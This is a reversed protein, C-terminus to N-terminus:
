QIEKTTRYLGRAKAEAPRNHIGRHGTHCEFCIAILNEPSEDGGFSRELIHHMTVARHTCHPSFMAECWGGSREAVVPQAAKM